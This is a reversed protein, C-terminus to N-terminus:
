GALRGPEGAVRAVAAARGRRWGHADSRRWCVAATAGSVLLVSPWAGIALALVHSLAFALLGAGTLQAAVRIGDRRRWERACWLGAGALV